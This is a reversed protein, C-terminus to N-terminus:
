RHAECDSSTDIEAICEIPSYSIKGVTRIKLFCGVIGDALDIAICRWIRVIDITNLEDFSEVEHTWVMLMEKAAKQCGRRPLIASKYEQGDRSEVRSMPPPWMCLCSSGLLFLSDQLTEIPMARSVSKVLEGDHVEVRRIVVRIDIIIGVVKPWFTPHVAMFPACVHELSRAVLDTHGDECKASASTSTRPKFTLIIEYM